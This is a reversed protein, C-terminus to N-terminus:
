SCAGMGGVLNRLFKFCFRKFLNSSELLRQCKSKPSSDRLGRKWCPFSIQKAYIKQMQFPVEYRTGNPMNFKPAIKLTPPRRLDQLVFVGKVTNPDARVSKPASMMPSLGKGELHALEQFHPLGLIWGVLFFVHEGFHAHDPFRKWLTKWKQWTESGVTLGFCFGSNLFYNPCSGAM